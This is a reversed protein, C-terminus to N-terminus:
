PLYELQVSVVYGEGQPDIKPTDVFRWKDTLTAGTRPHVWTFPLVGHSLTSNYFTEFTTMQASSFEFVCSINGIGSSSRRRMKIAGSDMNSRIRKPDPLKESYGRKSPKQPLGAPWTAM